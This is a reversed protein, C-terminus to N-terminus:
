QIEECKVHEENFVDFHRNIGAVDTLDLSLTASPYTIRANKIDSTYFSFITGESLDICAMLKNRSEEAVEVPKSCASLLIVVLLLNFRRM